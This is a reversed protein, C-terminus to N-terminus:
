QHLTAGVFNETYQRLQEAELHSKERIQKYPHVAKCSIAGMMTNYVSLNLTAEFSMQNIYNDVRDM